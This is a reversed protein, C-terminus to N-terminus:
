PPEHHCVTRHHMQANTVCRSFMPTEVDETFTLTNETLINFRSQPRM